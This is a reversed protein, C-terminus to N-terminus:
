TRSRASLQISVAQDLYDLDFPKPLAAAAKLRIIERGPDMRASTLVVPINELAQQRDAEARFEWGNMVPLALDLLIVDPQWRRLLELAQVGNAAGRVQWGVANLAEAIANRFEFDDDVILVSRADVRAELAEFAPRFSFRGAGALREKEEPTLTEEPPLDEIEIDLSNTTETM